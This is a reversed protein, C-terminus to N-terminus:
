NRRSRRSSRRSKRTAKRKASRATKRRATRKRRGGTRRTHRYMPNQFMRMGTLAAPQAAPPEPAPAGNAPAPAAAGNAPAAPNANAAAAAANAAAPAAAANAAQAPKKAGNVIANNGSGNNAASLKKVAESIKTLNADEIGYSKLINKTKTGINNRRTKPKGCFSPPATAAAEAAVRAAGIEAAEQRIPNRRGFFSM